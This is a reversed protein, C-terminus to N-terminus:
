AALAPRSSVIYHLSTEFEGDEQRLREFEPIVPM